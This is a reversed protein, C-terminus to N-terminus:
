SYCAAFSMSCFILSHSHSHTRCAEPRWSAQLMYVTNLLLEEEEAEEAEQNAETAGSNYKLCEKQMLCYIIYFISFTFSSKYPCVGEKACCLDYFVVNFVFRYVFKKKKKICSTFLSVSVINLYFCIQCIHGVGLSAGTETQLAETCFRTTTTLTPM